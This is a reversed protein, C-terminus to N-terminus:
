QGNNEGIQTNKKKITKDALFSVFQIIETIAIYRKSIERVLFIHVPEQYM